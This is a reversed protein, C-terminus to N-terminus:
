RVRAVERLAAVCARLAPREGARGLPSLIYHNKGSRQPAFGLAALAGAAVLDDVFPRRGIGLGLGRRAAEMILPSTELRITEVGRLADVRLADLWPGWEEAHQLNQLLPVGAKAFGSKMIKRALKPAAVPLVWEEALLEVRARPWSGTGYRIAIDIEDRDLDVLDSSVFVSLDIDPLLRRLETLRPVLWYQALAPLLSLRLQAKRAGALSQTASELDRHAQQVSGLYARGAPTLKVARHRREFLAAGIETELRRMQHSVASETLGLELAALKFSGLRGAAEFARLTSSGPFTIQDLRTRM